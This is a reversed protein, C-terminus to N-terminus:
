DFEARYYDQHRKSGDKEDLIWLYNTDLIRYKVIPPRTNARIKNETAAYLVHFRDLLIFDLRFNCSDITTISHSNESTEAKKM